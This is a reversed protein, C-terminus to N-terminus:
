IESFVTFSANSKDRDTHHVYVYMYLWLSSYILSSAWLLKIAYTEVNPYLCTKHINKKCIIHIKFYLGQTSFFMFSALSRWQGLYQEYNWCDPTLIKKKVEKSHFSTLILFIFKKIFTYIISSSINLIVTNYLIYHNWYLTM